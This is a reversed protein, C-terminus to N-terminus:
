AVEKDERRRAPSVDGSVGESPTQDELVPDVPEAPLPAPKAAAIERPPMQRYNPRPKGFSTPPPGSTWSRAAPLSARGFEKEGDLAARLEETRASTAQRIWPPLGNNKDDSM